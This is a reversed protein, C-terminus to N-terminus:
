VCGTPKPLGAIRSAQKAPGGPFLDYLYQPNGKDAGLKKELEKVLVKAMPSLQYLKFYDRLFLIIEWHGQTLEVGEYNALCSAVTEDWEDPNVLYGDDDVVINKGNVEITGM